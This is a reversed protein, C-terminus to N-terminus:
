HLRELNRASELTSKGRGPGSGAAPQAAFRQIQLIGQRTAEALDRPHCSGQVQSSVHFVHHGEMGISIEIYLCPIKWWMSPILLLRTVPWGASACHALVSLGEDAAEKARCGRALGWGPEEQM